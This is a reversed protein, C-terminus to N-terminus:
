HALCTQAFERWTKDTAAGSAKMNRWEVGCAHMRERSAAPLPHPPLDGAGSAAPSPTGGPESLTSTPAVPAASLPTSEAPRRPPLPASFPATAKGANPKSANQSSLSNQSASDQALSQSMAQGMPQSQAASAAALIAALAFLSATPTPGLVGGKRYRSPAHPAKMSGGAKM